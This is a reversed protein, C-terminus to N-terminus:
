LWIDVFTKLWCFLRSFQCATRHRCNYNALQCPNSFDKLDGDDSLPEACLPRVDATCMSTCVSSIPIDPSCTGNYAVQYVSRPPLIINITVVHTENFSWGLKRATKHGCNYMSLGCANSFTQIAGSGVIPEACVPQYIDMCMLTCVTIFPVPNPTCSDNYYVQYVSMYIPVILRCGNIQLLASGVLM